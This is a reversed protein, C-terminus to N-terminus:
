DKWTKKINTDLGDLAKDSSSLIDGLAEIHESFKGYTPLTRIKKLWNKIYATDIVARDSADMLAAVDKSTAVCDLAAALPIEGWKKFTPRYIGKYDFGKPLIHERDLGSKLAENYAAEAIAQATGFVATAVEPNALVLGSLSRHELRGHCERWEGFFGYGKGYNNGYGNHTSMRCKARRNHGKQGDLRIAPITLLEDMIKNTVAFLRYREEVPLKAILKPNDIHIHTGVPYDRQEEEHYCSSVFDYKLLREQLGEDRLITKINEVLGEPTLAPDPRMEAMAGDAGFKSQKTLGNINSANVVKGKAMLLLEPDTGILLKDIVDHVVKKPQPPPQLIAKSLDLFDGDGGLEKFTRSSVFAVRHSDEFQIKDELVLERVRRIDHSFAKFIELKKTKAVGTLTVGDEGPAVSDRTAKAMRLLVDENRDSKKNGDM